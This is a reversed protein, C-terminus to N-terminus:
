TYFIFFVGLRKAQVYSGLENSSGNIDPDTKNEIQKEKTCGQVMEQCQM